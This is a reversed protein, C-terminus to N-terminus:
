HSLNGFFVPHLQMNAPLVLRFKPDNIQATIVFPGVCHYGPKDCLRTTKIHRRLLWVRDGIKFPSPLHHRNANAKHQALDKQLHSSLELQIQQTRQLHQKVVSPNPSIILIELLFCRPHNDTYANFPTM